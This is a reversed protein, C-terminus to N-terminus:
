TSFDNSGEKALFKLPQTRLAVDLTTFYTYLHMNLPWVDQTDPHQTLCSVSYQNM